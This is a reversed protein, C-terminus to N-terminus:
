FVLAVFALIAFCGLAAMVLILSSELFNVTAEKHKKAVKKGISISDGVAKIAKDTNTNVIEVKVPADNSSQGTTQGCDSCFKDSESVQSGCKTCYKMFPMDFDSVKVTQTGKNNKGAATRAAAEEVKRKAESAKADAISKKYASTKDIIEHHTNQEDQTKEDTM